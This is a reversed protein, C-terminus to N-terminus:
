TLETPRRGCPSTSVMGPPWMNGSSRGCSVARSSFFRNLRQSARWCSQAHAIDDFFDAQAQRMNLQRRVKEAGFVTQRHNGQMAPEVVGVAERAQRRLEFAQADDRQVHGPVTMGPMARGARTVGHPVIGVIHQLDGFLQAEVAKRQQPM